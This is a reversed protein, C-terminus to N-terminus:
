LGMHSIRWFLTLEPNLEIAKTWDKIAQDLKGLQVYVFGRNEYSVLLSPDIEIAKRKRTNRIYSLRRPIIPSRLIMNKMKAHQDGRDYYEEVDM